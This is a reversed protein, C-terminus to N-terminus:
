LATSLYSTHRIGQRPLYRGEVPAVWGLKRAMRFRESANPISIGRLMAFQRSTQVGAAVVNVAEAIYAPM